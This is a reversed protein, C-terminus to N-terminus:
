LCKRNLDRQSLLLLLTREMEDDGDASGRRGTPVRFQRADRPLRKRKKVGRPSTLAQWQVASLSGFLLKLAQKSPICSGMGPIAFM